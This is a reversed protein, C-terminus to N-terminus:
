GAPRFRMGAPEPVASTRDETRCAAEGARRLDDQYPFTRRMPQLREGPEGTLALAPRGDAQPRYLHGQVAHRDAGIRRDFTGAFRDSGFMAEAPELRLALDGCSGDARVRIGCWGAGCRGIDLAFGYRESVWRGALTAAGAQVEGASRMAGDAGAM